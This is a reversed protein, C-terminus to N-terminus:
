FATSCSLRIPYSDFLQYWDRGIQPALSGMAMLNGSGNPGKSGPSFTSSPRCFAVCFCGCFSSRPKIRPCLLTRVWALFNNAYYFYRRRRSWSAWWRQAYHKQRNWGLGSSPIEGFIGVCVLCCRVQKVFFRSLHPTEPKPNVM